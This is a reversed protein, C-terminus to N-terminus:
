SNRYKLGRAKTFCNVGNLNRYAFAPLRSHAPRGAGCGQRWRRGRLQRCINRWRRRLRRDRGGMESRAHRRLHAEAGRAYERHGPRDRDARRRPAALRCLAPRLARSRLLRQRACPNGTRLRQLFRCRCPPDVALPRAQRARHPKVSQALEALAAEDPAPPPETLPGRLLSEIMTKRM